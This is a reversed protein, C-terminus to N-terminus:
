ALEYYGGPTAPASPDSPAHTGGGAPSSSAPTRAEAGQPGSAPPPATGRATAARRHQPRRLVARRQVDHLPALAKEFPPSKGEGSGAVGAAWLVCPESWGSKVVCRRTNGVAAAFGVLLPPAVLAEDCGVAAERVFRAAPAPLADVPFPRYPPLSPGGVAEPAVQPAVEPTLEPAVGCADATAGEAACETGQTSLTSTVSVRPGSTDGPTEDARGGTRLPKTPAM